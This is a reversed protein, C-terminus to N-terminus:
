GEFRAAPPPEMGTDHDSLEQARPMLAALEREALRTVNDAVFQRVAEPRLHERASAETLVPERLVGSAPLRHHFSELSARGADQFESRELPQRGAIEEPAKRACVDCTDVGKGAAGFVADHSD